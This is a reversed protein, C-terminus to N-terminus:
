DHGAFPPAPIEGADILSAAARAPALDFSPLFRAWPAMVPVVRKGFPAEAAAAKRVLSDPVGAQAPSVARRTPATLLTRYRGDWIADDTWAPLNRAERLLFIGSARSDVLTRSLVARMPTKATLRQHLAASRQEDPLHATGGTVALLIRLAYVAADRDANLFDQQLRVLGPAPRDAFVEILRAADRGIVIRHQAADGAIRLAEAIAAGGGADSLRKRIGPREYREDVNTPDDIWGIQRGTLYARLAARRTELLPRAFWVDGDFLTAPAIGALGRTDTKQGGRASRMLITEAQDDATHGTLVLDSGERRALGALLDHRAERAAALLGTRPKEGTWTLIRHEVGLTKCFDGVLEAERASGARLAHDVTAAVLRTAPAALRIHASILSLLATSDSGGSVAVVVGRRAAIDFPAFLHAPLLNAPDIDPPATLM